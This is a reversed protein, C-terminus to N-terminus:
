LKEVEPNIDNYPQSYLLTFNADDIRLGGKIVKLIGEKKIKRSLRELLVRQWNPRDKIKALEKGQTTDLFNQFHRRDVAFEPDYDASEGLRYGHGSRYHAAAEALTFGDLKVQERNTGTLATEICAELAKENTQTVM